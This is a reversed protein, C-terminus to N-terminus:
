VQQKTFFNIAVVFVKLGSISSIIEEWGLAFVFNDIHWITEIEPKTLFFPGLIKYLEERLREYRQHAVEKQDYVESYGISEIKDDEEFVFITGGNFKSPEWLLGLPMNGNKEIREKPTGLLKYAIDIDVGPHLLSIQEYLFIGTVPINENACASRWLLLILAILVTSKKWV